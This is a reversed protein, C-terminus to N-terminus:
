RSAGKWEVKRESRATGVKQYVTYRGDKEDRLALAKAEAMADGENDAVYLVAGAHVVIFRDADNAKMEETM